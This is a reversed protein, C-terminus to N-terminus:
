KCRNMKRQRERERDRKRNGEKDKGRETGEKDKGRETGRETEKKTEKERTRVGEKTRFFSLALEESVDTIKVMEVCHSIWLVTYHVNVATSVELRTESLKIM